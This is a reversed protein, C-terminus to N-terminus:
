QWLFWPIMYSLIIFGLTYFILVRNYRGTESLSEKKLVKYGKTIFFAALIMGIPHEVLYFRAITHKMSEGSFNSFGVPSLFYLIVGILIQLHVTIMGILAAVKTSKGIPKKLVYMVAVFLIVLLLLFLLILGITNHAGKLFYYM